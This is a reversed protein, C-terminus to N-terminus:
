GGPDVYVVSLHEMVEHHSPLLNWMQWSCVKSCNGPELRTKKTHKELGMDLGGRSDGERDANVGRRQM